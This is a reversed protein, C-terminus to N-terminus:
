SEVAILTQGRDVAQGVAVAVATVTGAHPATVRIEMKMAELLVLAQGREVVDGPAALVQRVVGPMPATLTDHGAAAARRRPAAVPVAFEFPGAAPAGPLAVWRQPGAAAVHAQQQSQGDVALLFVGPRTHAVQVTYTQGDVTIAFADGLPEVRVSVVAGNVVYRYDM